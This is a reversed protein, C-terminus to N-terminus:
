TGPRACATPVSIAVAVREVHDVGRAVDVEGVLHGTGQRSALARHQQDVSRLADLGLRQGVQVQRHLVVEGDDRHQVLDVQRGGLRLLVGCLQGVEDAAVGLVHRRTEPLVPTPTSASSSLITRSRGRRDAVRVSRGAGHDEVGDVVGVAADDGVDPDLVAHEVRALPDCIIDV